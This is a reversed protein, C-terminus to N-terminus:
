SAASSEWWSLLRDLCSCVSERRLVVFEARSEDLGLVGSVALKGAVFDAVWRAEFADFSGGREVSRFCIGVPGRPPSGIPVVERSQLWGWTRERDSTLSVGVLVLLPFSGCVRSRSARSRSRNCRSICRRANMSTLPPGALLRFPGEM